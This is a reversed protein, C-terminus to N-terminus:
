RECVSPLPAPVPVLLQAKTTEMSDGHMGGEGWHRALPEITSELFM